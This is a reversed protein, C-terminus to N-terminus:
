DFIGKAEDGVDERGTDVSSGHDEREAEGNKEGESEIGKLCDSCVLRGDDLEKAEVSLLVAGCLACECVEDSTDVGDVHFSDTGANLQNCRRVAAGEKKFVLDKLVWDGNIKYLVALDKRIQIEETKGKLVAFQWGFKVTLKGKVQTRVQKFIVYYVEEGMGHPLKSIVSADAAPISGGIPADDTVKKVEEFVLDSIFGQLEERFGKSLKKGEGSKESNLFDNVQKKYTDSKM